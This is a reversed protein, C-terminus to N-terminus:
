LRADTFVDFSYDRPASGKANSFRAEQAIKAAEGLLMEKLGKDQALTFCVEAALTLYFVKDFTPSYSDGDDQQFIYVIDMSEMDSLIKDGEIKYAQGASYSDGYSNVPNFSSTNPDYVEIIRLLDGPKNYEYDYGFTPTTGNNTITARKTAFDWQYQELVENRVSSLFTNITRARKNAATLSSITECGLRILAHNAIELDTLM